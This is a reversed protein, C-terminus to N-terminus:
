WIFGVKEGRLFRVLVHGYDVSRLAPVFVFVAFSAATGGEAPLAEAIEMLAQVLTIGPFDGLAVALAPEIGYFEIIQLRHLYGHLFDHLKEKMVFDVVM